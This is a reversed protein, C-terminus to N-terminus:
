ERLLKSSSHRPKTEKKLCSVLRFKLARKIYQRPILLEFHLGVVGKYGVYVRIPYIKSPITLESLLKQIGLLINSQHATGLVVKAKSWRVFTCTKGNLPSEKGICRLATVLAETAVIRVSQQVSISDSTSCEANLFGRLFAAKLWQSNL